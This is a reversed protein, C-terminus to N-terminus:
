SVTTRYMFSKGGTNQSSSLLASAAVTLASENSGGSTSPKAPILSISTTYRSQM